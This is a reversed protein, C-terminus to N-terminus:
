MSVGVIKILKAWLNAKKCNRIFRFFCMDNKNSMPM